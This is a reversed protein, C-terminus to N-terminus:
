TTTGNVLAEKPKADNRRSPPPRSSRNKTDRQPKSTAETHGNANQSADLNGSATHNNVQETVPQSPTRSRQRGRRKRRRQSGGGSWSAAEVSSVSEICDSDDHLHWNVHETQVPFM